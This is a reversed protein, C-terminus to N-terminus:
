AQAAKERMELWRLVLAEEEDLGDPARRRSKRLAALEAALGGSAWSELIGPHVYCSRCVSRTNGLRHAVEDIAANLARAVGAKTDPLPTSSFIAAARVTGGWTRFHKSSFDGKGADRLYDNVDQSRVMKRQGADDLYQFLQQGPLEQVSRVIKAIRRDVLRLQWEKGSKGRFRFRLKAGEIEVHRDRLTTLGFSKNDRAYQANGVRILTNDLLWIVSAVVREWSLSRRRLDGDVRARIDPLNRAFAALSSYKAEGRCLLWRPHYRYQKRGRQDRGTAQIHGDPDPCIWVDTWAPPIAVEHIRQLTARDSVRRGDPDVYTFGSVASKRRIGPESDSVYSLAAEEAAAAAAAAATGIESEITTTQDLVHPKAQEPGALCCHPDRFTGSRESLSIRAASVMEVAVRKAAPPVQRM